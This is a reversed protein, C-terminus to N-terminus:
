SELLAAIDNHEFELAWHQPTAQFKECRIDKRAGRSLLLQVTELHGNGAAWHLATGGFFGRHNVDAGQDLLYAAVDTHGSRSAVYFADSIAAADEAHSACCAAVTDMRGLGAASYLNLTAGRELLVAAAAQSNVTAAWALPTMGWNTEAQVDAGKAILLHVLIPHNHEAAVHLATKQNDDALRALAPDQNLQTLAEMLDGNECIEFFTM